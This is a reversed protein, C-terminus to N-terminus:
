YEYFQGGDVFGNKSFFARSNNTERFQDTHIIGSKKLDTPTIDNNVARLSWSHIKFQGSTSNYNNGIRVRIYKTDQVSDGSGFTALAISGKYRGYNITTSPKVGSICNTAANNSISGKNANFREIQIYVQNNADISVIFDYLYSAAPPLEIYPTYLWFAGGRSGILLGDSSYSYNNIYSSNTFDCILLEQSM